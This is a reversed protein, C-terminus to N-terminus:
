CVDKITLREGHGSGLEFNIQRELERTSWRSNVAEAEYFARAEPKEV